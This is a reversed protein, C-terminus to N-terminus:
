VKIVIRDMEEQRTNPLVHSYLDMTMSLSSHGLITKLTQPNGGQEIYRTAFTDRLAHSTFPEIHIGKEELKCLIRRINKNVPSHGIMQGTPSQFCLKQEKSDQQCAKRKLRKEQKERQQKLM